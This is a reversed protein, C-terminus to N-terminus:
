STTDRTDSQSYSHPQEAELVFSRFLTKEAEDIAQDLDKELEDESTNDSSIHHEQYLALTTAKDAINHLMKRIEFKEM